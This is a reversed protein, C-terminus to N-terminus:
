LILTRQKVLISYIRMYGAGPMLHRFLIPWIERGPWRISTLLKQKLKRCINHFVVGCARQAEGHM